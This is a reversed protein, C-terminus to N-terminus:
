RVLRHALAYIRNKSIDYKKAVERSAESVSVGNGLLIRLDEKIKEMREEDSEPADEKGGVVLTMEGKLRRERARALIGSLNGRLVEEHIKTLERALAAPRDGLIELCDALTEEIRHPAEYFILTFALSELASLAEKRQKSKPPLFGAFFFRYPPLGSLLLASLHASPGPLSVVPIGSDVCKRILDYGPDSLLPTGADSVLAVDSGEGLKQLLKEEKLEAKESDYYSIMPKDIGFHNLLNRTHRTDEAAIWDAEKLTRLVRLTIDELNGIPTPCIFLTGPM